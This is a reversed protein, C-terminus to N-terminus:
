IEAEEVNGEEAHGDEDAGEGADGGDEEAVEEGGDEEEVEEGGEGDEGGEEEEEGEDDGGYWWEYRGLGRSKISAQITMIPKPDGMKRPDEPPKNIGDSFVVKQVAFAVTNGEDIANEVVGPEGGADGGADGGAERGAEDDDEPDARFTLKWARENGNVEFVQQEGPFESKPVRIGGLFDLDLLLGGEECRNVYGWLVQGHMPAFVLLRFRCRTNADGSDPMLRHDGASVWDWLGCCIGAGSLVTNAYKKNVVLEMADFSDMGFLAAPVQVVDEVTVLRFM